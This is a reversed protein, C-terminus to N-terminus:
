LAEPSLDLELDRSRRSSRTRTLTQPKLNEVVQTGVTKVVVNDILSSKVKVDEDQQLKTKCNVDVCKDFASRSANPKQLM